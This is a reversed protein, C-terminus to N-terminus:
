RLADLEFEFAAVPLELDYRSWRKEGRTEESAESV